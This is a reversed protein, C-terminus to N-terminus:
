LFMKKSQDLLVPYLNTSTTTLFLESELLDQAASSM